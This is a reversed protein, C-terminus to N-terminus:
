KYKKAISFINFLMASFYGIFGLDIALLAVTWPYTFERNGLTIPEGALNATLAFIGLVTLIIIGIGIPFIAEQLQKKLFKKRMKPTVFSQRSSLLKGGGVEITYGSFFADVGTKEIASLEQKVSWVSKSSNTEIDFMGKVQIYQSQEEKVLKPEDNQECSDKENGRLLRARQVTLTHKGKEISSITLSEDEAITYEESDVTIKLGDDALNDIRINPM